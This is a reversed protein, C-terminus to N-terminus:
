FSFGPTSDIQIVILFYSPPSIKAEVGKPLSLYGPISLGDRATYTIPQPETLQPIDAGRYSESMLVLRPKDASRDYLYLSPLTSNGSTSFVIKQWDKSAAQILVRSPNGPLQAVVVNYEKELSKDFWHYTTKEGVVPIAVPRGEATLLPASVIDYRGEKDEFVTGLVQGKKHAQKDQGNRMIMLATAGDEVYGVFKPPVDKDLGGLPIPEIGDDTVAHAQFQQKFRHYGAANYIAGTRKTLM